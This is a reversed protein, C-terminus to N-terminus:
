DDQHVTGVVHRDSLERDASRVGKPGRPRASLCAVAVRAHPDEVPRCGQVAVVDGLDAVHIRRQEAALITDADEDAASELDLDPRGGDAVVQDVEVLLAADHDVVGAGVRQHSLVVDTAFAQAIDDGLIADLEPTSNNSVEACTLTSWLSTKWFPTPISMSSLATASTM